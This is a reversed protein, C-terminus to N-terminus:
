TNKVSTQKTCENWTYQHATYELPNLSTNVILRQFSNLSNRVMKDIAFMDKISVILGVGKVFTSFVCKNNLISCTNLHIKIGKVASM